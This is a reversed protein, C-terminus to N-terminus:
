RVIFKKGNKIYLGKPLLNAKHSMMRGDITYINGDGVTANAGAEIVVKEIDTTEGDNGFMSSFTTKSSTTFFDDYDANTAYVISTYQSWKATKSANFYLIHKGDSKRAGLFYTYQPMMVAKYVTQTVTTTGESSSTTQVSYHNGVFNYAYETGNTTATQTTVEPDATVMTYAFEGGDKTPYIMYSALAKIVIDDDEGSVQCQEDKFKLYITKATTNDANNEITREVGSFKCVQADDGFVSKVEARTMNFPVSITWWLDKTYKSFNWYDSQQSSPADDFVLAFLHLGKYNTDYTTGDVNTGKDAANYAEQMLEYGRWAIEEGLNKDKYYLWQTNQYGDYTKDFDIPYKTTVTIDTFKAKQEDTLDPRIHLVCFVKSGNVYETHELGNAHATNRDFSTGNFGRYSSEDFAAATVIPAETGLFYVDAINSQGYFAKAGIKKLSAPFTLTLLSGTQVSNFAEDGIEELSNPFVVGTLSYCQYFASANIKKLQEPLSVSTLAICGNFASEGIEETASGSITVSKLQKCAAFASKGITCNELNVSTLNCSAFASEGISCGSITPLSTLGNCGYFAKGGIEVDTLGTITILSTRNAFASEGIKVGKNLNIEKLKQWRYDTAFAESGITSIGDSLTLSTLNSYPSCWSALKEVLTSSLEVANSIKPFTLNEVKGFSYGSGGIPMFDFYTNSGVVYTGLNEIIAEGMDLTTLTQNATRQSGMIYSLARIDVANINGTIKLKTADKITQQDNASIQETLAYTYTDSDWTNEAKKITETGIQGADGTVAIKVVGDDSKTVTVDANGWACTFLAVFFLLIRKMKQMIIKIPNNSRENEM